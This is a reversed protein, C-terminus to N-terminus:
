GPSNAPGRSAVAEREFCVFPLDRGPFYVQGAERYGRGRYLALAQANGSFADLRISAFGSRAAHAEVFDMLQRAYGRGQADPDVCLRHVILAPQPTEWPVSAWEPEEHTDMAVTAVCRGDEALVYLQGAAADGIVHERTPYADQWQIVGRERLATRCRDIISWVADVHSQDAKVIM